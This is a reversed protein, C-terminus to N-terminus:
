NFFACFASSLDFVNLDVEFIKISIMVINYEFDTSEADSNIEFLLFVLLLFFYFILWISISMENEFCHITSSDKIILAILWNNLLVYAKWFENANLVIVSRFLMENTSFIEFNLEVRVDNSLGNLDEEFDNEIISKENFVDDAAADDADDSFSSGRFFISDFAIIM